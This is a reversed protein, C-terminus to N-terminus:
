PIAAAGFADEQALQFTMVADPVPEAPYILVGGIPDAAWLKTARVDWARCDEEPWASDFLAKLLNDVDPRQQHPTLHAAIRRAKSWGRPIPLYFVVGMAHESAAKHVRLLRLQDRM